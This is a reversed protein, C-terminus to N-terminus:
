FVAEERGGPILEQWLPQQRAVLRDLITLNWIDGHLPCNGLSFELISHWDKFTGWICTKGVPSKRCFYAAIICFDGEEGGRWKGDLTGFGNCPTSQSLFIDWCPGSLIKFCLFSLRYPVYAVSGSFSLIMVPRTKRTLTVSVRPNSKFSSIVCQSSLTEAKSSVYLMKRESKSILKPNLSKKKQHHLFIIFPLYRYKGSFGNISAGWGIAQSCM